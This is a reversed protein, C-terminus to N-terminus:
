NNVYGQDWTKKVDHNRLDCGFDVVAKLNMLVSVWGSHVENYDSENVGKNILFLDCSDNKTSEIKFKVLSDFYDIHFEKNPSVKLIKSDYTEGNPFVFHIINGNDKADEAWFSKRGESTTLLNFVSKSDTNLCIKWNITKMKFKKNLLTMM